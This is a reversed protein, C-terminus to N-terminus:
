AAGGKVMHFLERKDADAQSLAVQRALGRQIALGFEALLELEAECNKAAHKAGTANGSLFFERKRHLERSHSQVAEGLVAATIADVEIVFAGVDRLEHWQIIM